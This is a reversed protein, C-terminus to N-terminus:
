INLIRNFWATTEETAPFNVADQGNIYGGIAVGDYEARKLEAALRADGADDNTLVFTTAQFGLSRLREQVAAAIEPHKGFGLIRWGTPRSSPATSLVPHADKMEIIIVETNTDGINEGIHIHGKMWVVSGAKVDAEQKRGDPFTLRRKFSSEAYLVYDPHAHQTTRDGPKDHYKLVRVRGNELVVSYKDGDTEVADQTISRSKM